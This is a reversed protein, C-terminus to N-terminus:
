QTCQDQAANQPIPQVGCADSRGVAATVAAHVHSTRMDGFLHPALRPGRNCSVTPHFIGHFGDGIPAAARM